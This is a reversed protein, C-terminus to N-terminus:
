RAAIQLEALAAANDREFTARDISLVIDDPEDAYARAPESGDVRFGVKHFVRLSAVNHPVVSAYIVRLDAVRFGFAAVAIAVRTGLGKGQLNPAGIMFAFEATGDVFGRLDADGVLADDTFVLFPRAGGAFMAAYVEVVEEPEIHSTHGMLVANRPENYGAALTVAHERVDDITPELAALHGVPAPWDIRYRQV